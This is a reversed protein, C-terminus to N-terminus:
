AGSAAERVLGILETSTRPIGVPRGNIYMAPTSRVGARIGSQQDSVIKARVEPLEIDARLQAMDLGIQEAFGDFMLTPDDIFSWAQQNSFLLDHMLWFQGQRAAAEAYRAAQFSFRHTDLPFHRFVLRADDRIQPWTRAILEYETFCAPCQFDAYLTITVNGNEAGRVHDAEGIIDPALAPPGSFLGQYFVFLTVPLLVAIAIKVMLSNFRNKRKAAAQKEEKIKRKEEKRSM